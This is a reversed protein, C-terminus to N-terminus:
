STDKYDFEISKWGDERNIVILNKIKLHTFNDIIEEAIGTLELHAEKQDMINNKM